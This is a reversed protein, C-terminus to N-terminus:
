ANDGVAEENEPPIDEIEMNEILNRELKVVWKGREEDFRPMRITIQAYITQGYLPNDPDYVRMSQQRDYDRAKQVRVRFNMAQGRDAFLRQIGRPSEIARDLLDYCDAYALRSVPTIM